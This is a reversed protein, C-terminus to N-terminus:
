CSRDKEGGGLEAVGGVDEEPGASESGGEAAALGIDGGTGPGVAEEEAGLTSSSSSVGVPADAPSCSFVHHLSAKGTGRKKVGPYGM